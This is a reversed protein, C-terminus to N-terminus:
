SSFFSRQSHRYTTCVACATLSCDMLDKEM